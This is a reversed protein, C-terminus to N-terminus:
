ESKLAKMPDARSARRAPLYVAFAAVAVLVTPVGIFAAPDLASVNYLLGEVLRAAGAAGALGIVTGIAALRMGEGLVQKLVTEKDAGLAVRIGLERKRQAVSYAMVGYIGVAALLLGLIGFMGLVSGGLRAPMLAIGMHDEMTRVDYVPLNPDANRVIRQIAQLVAQPDSPTRAVLTMGTRFLERQSFWMYEAPAEGLSRYKGTELVGVVERDAGATQVIKGLAPEGPWFRDAFRKNVIIVPPGAEDDQRTFTRGEVLDIGMTEMYGETVIAYM